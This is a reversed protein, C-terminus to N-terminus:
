EPVIFEFCDKNENLRNESFKRATKHIDARISNMESKLAYIESKLAYYIIATGGIQPLIIQWQKLVDEPPDIINLAKLSVFILIAWLMIEWINPM